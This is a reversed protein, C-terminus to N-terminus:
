KPKLGLWALVIAVVVATIVGVLVKAINELIGSRGPQSPMSPALEPLGVYQSNLRLTQEHWFAYEDVSKGQGLVTLIHNGQKRALKRITSTTCGESQRVLEVAPGKGPQSFDRLCFGEGNTAFHLFSRPHIERIYVMQAM